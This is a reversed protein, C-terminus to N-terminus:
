KKRYILRPRGKSRSSTKGVFVLEENKLAEQIKIHILGDSLKEKSFNKVDTSTFDVDPWNINKRPRGKKNAMCFTYIM